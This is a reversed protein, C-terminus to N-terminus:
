LPISSRVGQLVDLAERLAEILDAESGGAPFPSVTLAGPVLPIFLNLLDIVPGVQDFAADLNARKSDALGRACEAAEGLASIGSTAAQAAAADIRERLNVITELENVAGRGFRILTDVYGLIMAPVSLQPVIAAVAATKQQVEALAEGIATPDPPPGLADPIAEAFDKIALVAELLVFFPKLPATAGSAQAFMMLAQEVESVPAAGRPFSIGVGAGGPFTIGLDRPTVELDACDDAM